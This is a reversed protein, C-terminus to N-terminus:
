IDKRIRHVLITNSPSNLTLSELKNFTENNLLKSNGSTIMILKIVWPLLGIYGAGSIGEYEMLVGAVAPVLGSLDLLSINEEKKEIRRIEKNLSYIKFSLEEPSLNSYEKLIEPIRRRGHTSLIDDLELVNMDNNITFINSLLTQIETERLDNSLSQVGNYIGNLIKCANVESYGTNEFPFHHAGLGQAFELGMASTTLELYCDIGRAKYIQAAFNAAGFQSVALAGRQNLAYELFAMNDSISEALIYLSEINSSYCSKLINYQTESDFAFGFLGTKNRIGLLSSATLRRSFLVCESDISLVDALFNLDYRNINQYAVFKVRGRKVLELLEIRNIKFMDYFNNEHHSESLPIAIIITDYLSLYERINNRIFVTADIFCSNKNRIFSDTLCQEITFNTDTLINLKNELWFEQDEEYKEIIENPYNTKLYSSATLTLNGQNNYNEKDIYNYEPLSSDTNIEYKYGYYGLSECILVIEDFETKSIEKKLIFTFTNDAWSLDAHFPHFQSPMAISLNNDFERANFPQGFLNVKEYINRLNIKNFNQKIENIFMPGPAGMTKYKYDYLDQIEKLTFNYREHNQIVAYINEEDHFLGIHDFKYNQIIFTEYNSKITEIISPSSKIYSLKM